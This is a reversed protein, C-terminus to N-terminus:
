FYRVRIEKKTKEVGVSFKFDDFDPRRIGKHYYGAFGFGEKPFGLLNYEMLNTDNEDDLLIVGFVGKPIKMTISMIGDKMSKKEFRNVSLAKDEKYSEADEFVMIQIHGKINRIHTINLEVNQALIVM